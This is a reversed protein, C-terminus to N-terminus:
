AAERTTTIPVPAAPADAFAERVRDRARAQDFHGYLKRVLEGGDQHGFHQAIDAPDLGLVNSAYAAFAHRTCTYLDMHGLGAACRVKNWHHSRSSPTYHTGRLSTFCWESERSLSLLRERARPTMAVSRIVGHKPLTLKGTRANWQREILIVERGPTFDVDDWRLADLEGPRTGEHVAVDLYAAFSPPTLEDALAILRRADGEAPPQIDRRGRSQRIRLGAFPNRDVLRGADARAADNFMARLAPITRDSGGHRRYERVTEDDVARIPLQGYVTVFRSTRERNHLNTSESPRQWLADTTWEDWWERVTVGARASAKLLDRAQDEARRAERDTRYSSPGGIVSAPNLHKGTRPDRIRPRWRGSPLLTPM